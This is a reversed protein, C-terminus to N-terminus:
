RRVGERGDNIAKGSNVKDDRGGLRRKKGSLASPLQQTVVFRGCVRSLKAEM